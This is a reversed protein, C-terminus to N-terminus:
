VASRNYTSEKAFKLFYVHFEVATSNVLSAPAVCEITSEAINAVGKWGAWLFGNDNAETIKTLPLNEVAVNNEDRINLKLTSQLAATTSTLTPTIKQPTSQPKTLGLGMLYCFNLRVKDKLDYQDVNAALEVVINTSYVKPRGTLDCEFLPWKERPIDLHVHM